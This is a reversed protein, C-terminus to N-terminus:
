CNNLKLDKHAQSINFLFDGISVSRLFFILRGAARKLRLGSLFVSFLEINLLVEITLSGGQSFWLLLFPLYM